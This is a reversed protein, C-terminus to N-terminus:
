TRFMCKIIKTQLFHVTYTSRYTSIINIMISEHNYRFPLSFWCSSTYSITYLKCTVKAAQDHDFSHNSIIYFTSLMIRKNVFIFDFGLECSRKSMERLSKLECSVLLIDTRKRQELM